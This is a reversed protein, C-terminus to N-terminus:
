RAVPREVGDPPDSRDGTVLDFFRLGSSGHRPYRDYVVTSGDIGVGLSAGAVNVTIRPEGDPKVYANWGEDQTFDIWAFADPTAAPGQEAVHPRDRIVVPVAAFAADAILLIGTIALISTLRVAATRRLGM